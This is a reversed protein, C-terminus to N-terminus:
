RGGRRWFQWWRRAGRNKWQAFRDDLVPALKDYNAWTDAVHYISPLGACLAREYDKFYHKSYYRTVFAVGDPTLDQELFKGDRRSFLFDRGTISRTRVADMSDKWEKEHPQAVLGNIIGWAVFMGIHTGAADEPLDSAVSDTHWDAKDISM